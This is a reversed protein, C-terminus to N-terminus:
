AQVAFEEPDTGWNIWCIAERASQIQPPVRVAHIYGTSPCSMKLVQVPELDVAQNIKLLTYDSWSDVVAAQLERCIREYGIGQILARRLEANKESLLWASQWERPDLKGYQEPIRIGHYAYLSLEDGFAVAPTGEAHLRNQDDLAIQSPRDCILCFDQHLFLLGCSEVLTKLIDWHRAEPHNPELVSFYFDLVSLYPEGPAIFFSQFLDLIRLSPLPSDAFLPDPFCPSWVSNAYWIEPTMRDLHSDTLFELIEAFTPNGLKEELELVVQLELQHLIEQFPAETGCFSYHQSLMKLVRAMVIPSSAVIVKVEKEQSMLDQYAYRIAQTAQQRDIPETKLVLQRWKDQYLPLLNKQDSTLHVLSTM